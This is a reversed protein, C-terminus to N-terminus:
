VSHPAALLLKKTSTKALFSGSEETEQTTTICNATSCDLLAAALLRQEQVAMQLGEFAGTYAALLEGGLIGPKPHLQLQRQLLSPEAGLPSSHQLVHQLLELLPSQPRVPVGYPCM